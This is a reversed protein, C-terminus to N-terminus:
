RLRIELEYKYKCRFVFLVFLATITFKAYRMAILLVSFRWTNTLDNKLRESRQVVLQALLTLLVTTSSYIYVILLLVLMKM